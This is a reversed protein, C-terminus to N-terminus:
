SLKAARIIVGLERIDPALGLQVPTFSANLKLQFVRPGVDRKVLHPLDIRLDFDGAQYIAVESVTRNGERIKMILKHKRYNEFRPISGELHLQCQGADPFLYFTCQRGTWRFGAQGAREWEHWGAGLQASFADASFDIFPEGEIPPRHSMRELQKRIVNLWVESVGIQRMLPATILSMAIPGIRIGERACQDVLLFLRNLFSLQINHYSNHKPGAEDISILGDQVAKSRLDTGPYFMLPFIIMEFPVPFRSVLLLTQRLDADSEWPNDLIFDFQRRKIKSRYRDLLHIAKLVAANSHPRRYLKKTNNSGSQIGMRIAVLGAATLADLKRPTITLPTAGTVWMPIDVQEKYMASFQEIEEETRMFFADDDICILEIFPFQKAIARLEGIVHETSRKRIRNGEPFIKNYAHNWCYTCRSPCGRTTLTLYYEKLCLELLKGTLPQIEGDYLVYHSAPDYDPYPLRDLDQILPRLPTTITTDGDRSWIGPVHRWDDGSRMRTVLDALSDEGEGICVMDAHKLCDNPLLTPHIGGWIVPARSVHKLTNTILVANEFDDTMVSLGVLDAEVTLDTIQQLVHASYIEGLQRPLFVVDVKCGIRKLCASLIRVGYAHIKNVHPSPSILVVKV